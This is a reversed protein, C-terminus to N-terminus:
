VWLIIYLVYDILRGMSLLTDIWESVCCLCQCSLSRTLNNKFLVVLEKQALVLLKQMANGSHALHIQITGADLLYKISWSGPFCSVICNWALLLLIFFRVFTLFCCTANSHMSMGISLYFAPKSPDIFLTGALVNALILIFIM